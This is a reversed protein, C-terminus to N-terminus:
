GVRASYRCIKSGLARTCGMCQGPYFLLVVPIFAIYTWLYGLLNGSWAGMAITGYTFVIASYDADTHGVMSAM